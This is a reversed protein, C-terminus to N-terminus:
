GRRQILTPASQYQPIIQPVPIRLNNGTKKKGSVETPFIKRESM